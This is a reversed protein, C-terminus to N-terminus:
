RLIAAPDLGSARRAPIFAAIVSTIISLASVWIFDWARLEVPLQTIFYLDGPLPYPQFKFYASLGLGLLAGLLTGAGGLLFGELTFVALIQRQSAGLARLVAIEETKESVTLILINAIGMAAVLVILFTVASILARQLRLQDILSSFLNEWSTPLLEFTAGLARAITGAQEPDSVRVHYGSIQDEARLFDQLDPLSVYSVVSDIIENGVRSTDAVTFTRSLGAIDRVFVEDGPFVGLTNFALTEGLIISKEGALEDSNTNLAELELVERERGPDIGLMQTFGGRGSIGLSANARRSILAQAALFPSAAVVGPYDSIRALTAPDDPLLSGDFSTLTVHPTAKLTSSILEDIFGNTLSLATVVVMVGVAVGLVTLGSQLARHRVHKRALFLIFSRM